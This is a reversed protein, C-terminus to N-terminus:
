QIEYTITINSTIKNEGLPLEPSTIMESGGKGFAQMEVTDFTARAYMPYAGSENFNVIRVLDVGLDKALREAKEKADEIALKRADRKLEDEDDISFTLGTVNTVEIEGVGSLIEGAKETDRVKVSISQSAVYGILVRKNGSPPCYGDFCRVQETRYEYRPYVSYNTIKIDKEEVGQKELYTLAENIKEASLEQAENPTSAEETVSFNFSAIDAVSFVEGEGSFSMTNLGTQGIYKNSKFEGITKFVMFISTIILFITLIKFVDDKSKEIEKLM